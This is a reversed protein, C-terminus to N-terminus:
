RKGIFKYGKPKEKSKFYSVGGAVGRHSKGVGEFGLEDCLDWSKDNCKKIKNLVDDLKSYLDTDKNVKYYM